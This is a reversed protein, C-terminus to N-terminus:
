IANVKFNRIKLNSNTSEPQNIVMEEEEEEEIISVECIDNVEEQKIVLDNENDM